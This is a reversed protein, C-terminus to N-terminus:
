RLGPHRPVPRDRPTYSQGGERSSKVAHCAACLAQLNRMGHDDGRKIHDVQNAVRRCRGDTSLGHGQCVGEDRSLVARRINPWNKPLRRKRDSGDWPQRKPQAM